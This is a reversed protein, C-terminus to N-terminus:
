EYWLVVGAIGIMGSLTHKQEFCKNVALYFHYCKSVALYQYDTHQHNDGQVASLLTQPLSIPLFYTCYTCCIDMRDDTVHTRWMCANVFLENM